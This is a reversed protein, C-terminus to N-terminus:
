AFSSRPREAFPELDSKVKLRVARPETKPETSGLVQCVLGNQFRAILNVTIDIRTSRVDLYSISEETWLIRYQKYFQSFLGNEMGRKEINLIPRFQSTSTQHPIVEVHMRGNSDDGDRAILSVTPISTYFRM